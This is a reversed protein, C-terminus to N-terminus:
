FPPPPPPGGGDSDFVGLPQSITVTTVATVQVQVSAGTTIYPAPPGLQVTYTGAMVGVVSFDGNADTTDSVGGITVEVGQVGDGTSVDVVRGEVTAKGVAVSVAGNASGGKGDTVQCRVEYTGVAAPANWTIRNGSGSVLGGTATWAYSLNDGDADAATCTVTTSDSPWLTTAAASMTYVVPANNATGGGGGCGFLGLAAIVLAVALAKRAVM